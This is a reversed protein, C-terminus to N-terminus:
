CNGKKAQGPPCFKGDGSKSDGDKVEVEIGGPGKVKVEPSRVTTQCASLAGLSLMIAFIYLRKM